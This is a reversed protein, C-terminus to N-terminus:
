GDLCGVIPGREDESPPAGWLLVANRHRELVQDIQIDPSAFNRYAQATREAENDTEGFSITVHQDPALDARLAGATATSAVFDVDETTVDHGADELCGRTPELAYAEPEGAGCGALLLAAALGLLL